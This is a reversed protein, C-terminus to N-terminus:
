LCVAPQFGAFRALASAPFQALAENYKMLIQNLGTRGMSVRRLAQTCEEAWDDPVAAGALDSPTAVLAQWAVQVADIRPSLQAIRNWAHLADRPEQLLAELTKVSQLLDIWPMAVAAKPNDMDGDEVDHLQAHLSICAHTIHKEVSGLAEMARARIRMLRNHAGVAWFVLTALVGWLVISNGM